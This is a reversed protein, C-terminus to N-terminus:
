IHDDLIWAEVRHALKAFTGRAISLCPHASDDKMSVFSRHRDSSTAILNKWIAFFIRGVDDGSNDSSMLHAPRLRHGFFPLRAQPRLRGFVTRSIRILLINQM